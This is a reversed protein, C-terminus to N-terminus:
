SDVEESSYFRWKIQENKVDWLAMLLIPPKKADESSIINTFLIFDIKLNQMQDTYKDLTSQTLDDQDAEQIPISKIQIQSKLAYITQDSLGSEISRELEKLDISDATLNFPEAISLSRLEGINGTTELLENILFPVKEILYNTQNQEKSAEQRERISFCIVFVMLVILGNIFYNLRKNHM